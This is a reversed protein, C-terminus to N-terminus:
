WSLSWTRLTAQSMRAPSGAAPVELQAALVLVEQIAKATLAPMTVVPQNSNQSPSRRKTRVALHHGTAWALAPVVSKGAGAKECGAKIHATPRNPTEYLM